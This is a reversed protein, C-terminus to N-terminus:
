GYTPPMTTTTTVRPAHHTQLSHHMTDLSHGRDPHHPPTQPSSAHPSPRESDPDHPNYDNKKKELLLRCVLHLRSQLESTHEESRPRRKTAVKGKWRLGRGLPARLTEDAWSWPRWSGCNAGGSKWRIM